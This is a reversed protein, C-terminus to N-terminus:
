TANEENFLNFDVRYKLDLKPYMNFLNNQSIKILDKQKEISLNEYVKESIGWNECQMILHTSLRMELENENLSKWSELYELTWKDTTNIPYFILIKSKGEYPFINTYISELKNPSIHISSAYAEKLPYSLSIFDFNKNESELDVKFKSFEKNRSKLLEEIVILNQKSYQLASVTNPNSKLIASNITRTEREKIIQEKRIMSLLTRFAFLLNIQYENFDLPHTEIPLFIDTDHQNCLTPYSHAQNLGIKKFATISGFNKGTWKFVDIPKIEYIHGSSEINSLVGNKQLIHSNIAKESCEEILCDWQIAKVNRNIGALIKEGKKKDKGM